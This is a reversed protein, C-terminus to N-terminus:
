NPMYLATKQGLKEDEWISKGHLFLEELIEHQQVKPWGIYSATKLHELVSGCTKEIEKLRMNIYTNQHHMKVRKQESLTVHTATIDVRKNQERKYKIGRIMVRNVFHLLEPQIITDKQFDLEQFLKYTKTSIWKKYAPYIRNEALYKRLIINNADIGEYRNMSTTKVRPPLHEEFDYQKTFNSIIKLKFNEELISYYFVPKDKYNEYHNTYEWNHWM